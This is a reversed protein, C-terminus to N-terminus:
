IETWDAAAQRDAGVAHLLRGRAYLAPAFGPALALTQDLDPGAGKADNLEMRCRARALYLLPRDGRLGVAQTYQEAAEEYRSDAEYCRGLAALARWSRPLTRLAKRLVKMAPGPRGVAVLAEGYEVLEEPSGEATAAEPLLAEVARKAEAPLGEEGRAEAEAQAARAAVSWAGRGVALAFLSRAAREDGPDAELAADLTTVADAPRGLTVLAAALGRRAGAIFTAGGGGRALAAEFAVRAADADGSVLALNGRAVEDLETGAKAGSGAGAEDPEAEFFVDDLEVAAAARPATGEGAGQAALSFFWGGAPSAFVCGPMSEMRLVPGGGSLPTLTARVVGLFAAYEIAIRYARDVQFNGGGTRLPHEVGPAPRCVLGAGYTFRGGGGEGSETNGGGSCGFRLACAPEPWGRGRERFLGALVQGCWEMGSVRLDFSLRFSGGKWAPLAMRLEDPSCRLLRARLRGAEPARAFTEPESTSWPPALPRTFDERALSRMRRFALIGDRVTELRGRDQGPGPVLLAELDRLAGDFDWLALRADLARTLARGSPTAGAVRGSAAEERAVEELSSAAKGFEGARLEEEALWERARMGAADARDVLVLAAAVRRAAVGLGASVLAELARLGDQRSAPRAREAPGQTVGGGGAGRRGEGTGAPAAAVAAAEEAGVSWGYAELENGRLRVLEARGDGDVDALTLVAEPMEDLYFRCTEFALGGGASPGPAPHYLSWWAVGEGTPRSESFQACFEPRGDGDMDGASLAAVAPRTRAEADFPADRWVEVLAEKELRFLYLGVPPGHPNERGFVTGNDTYTKACLIEDRGDGDVDVGAVGRVQGLRQRALVRWGGGAAATDPVCVRVDYMTWDGTGLLIARRGDGALDAFGVAVTDTNGRGSRLEPCLTVSRLKRGPGSVFVQTNRLPYNGGLVLESSGDKDLDAMGAAALTTGVLTRGAPALRGGEFELLFLAVAEPLYAALAVVLPRGAGFLDGTLVHQITGAGAAFLERRGLDAIGAASIRCARVTTADSFVWVPPEATTPRCLAFRSPVFPLTARLAPRLRARWRRAAAEEDTAASTSAPGAPAPGGGLRLSALEARLVLNAAEDAVPAAPFARLVETAAHRAPGAHGSRLAGRALLTFGLARLPDEGAAALADALAAVGEEEDGAARLADGRRLAAEVAARTGPYRTAVVGYATAADRARGDRELALASELAETVESVFRSHAAEAAQRDQRTRALFLLALLGAMAVATALTAAAAQRHRALTKAARDLTSPPRALITQNNLYRSLDDALAAASAYRRAPSKELAKLCITQVDLPLGPRHRRPELPDVNLTKWHVEAATHGEFPVKGTALEYLIVGLAFVDTRADVAASGGEVQEPAMYYPTGLVDGTQTLTGVADLTKALGFDTLHPEGAGDVLINAPKLDRHVVQHAHAYHVAGAVTVLLRLAVPLEPPHERLIRDLTSGEVYDMTFYHVGEIVGTEHVAVLNPHQLRAAAEAEKLFRRVQVDGAAGGDRLVKLAVVRGLDAQRAQYVIGMGGRGLERLIEYKGFNGSAAVARTAAGPGPSRATSSPQPAHAPTSAAPSPPLGDLTEDAPALRTADSPAAIDWGCAPCSVRAGVAVGATGVAVGCAPCAVTRARLERLVRLLQTPSLLRRKVLAQGLPLPKSAGASERLCDEVAVRSVLGLRLAVAAFAEDEIDSKKESM